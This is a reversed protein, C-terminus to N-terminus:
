GDFSVSKAWFVGDLARVEALIEASLSPSINMFALARGGSKLRGLSVNVINISHKALLGAVEALMGPRDNNEFMLVSGEPRADFSHEGLLVVRPNDQGFLTASIRRNERDSTVEMTLLNRYGHGDGHRDKEITVGYEEAFHPVSVLNVPTNLSVQFLGQLASLAVFECRTDTSFIPGSFRMVVKKPKGELIQAQLSGLRSGLAAFPSIHDLELADLAITNVANRIEGKSLYDKMQHGAMLGVAEQAEATSAGLHPTLVINDLKTFPHDKGLPESEFVDLAAGAIQGNELAKALAAEDVIGGRACNVIRAGRRMTRLVADDILNKTKPTLPVHVTVYDSQSFLEDLECLKAGMEAAMEDTLFPDYGLLTMEFARAREAVARGIKGLGVVGLTKGRLETGELKKSRWEGRRIGADAAPINRTMALMMAMTHEAAANTNGGPTNMVLVGRRTADVVDINDVGVGARAIAKLRTAKELVEAPVKCGSRVILGDYEGIQDLLEQGRLKESVIEFRHDGAFLA